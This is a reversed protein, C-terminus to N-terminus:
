LDHLAILEFPESQPRHIFRGQADTKVHLTRDPGGGTPIKGGNVEAEQTPTALLVDADALPKGEATVIVGSVPDGPRLAFEFTLAGEGEDFIRSEQPVYGDAEIRIYWQQTDQQ